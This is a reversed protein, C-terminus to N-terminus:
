WKDERDKILFSQREFETFFDRDYAANCIFDSYLLFEDWDVGLLNEKRSLYIYRIVLKSKKCFVDMRDSYLKVQDSHIIENKAFELFKFKSKALVGITIM